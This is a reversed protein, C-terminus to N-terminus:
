ENHEANLQYGPEKTWHEVLEMVLQEVNMGREQAERFLKLRAAPSVSGRALAAMVEDRAARASEDTM